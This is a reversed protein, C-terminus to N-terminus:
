GGYQWGTARLELPAAERRVGAAIVEGMVVEHDGQALSGVVKCELYAPSEELLPSGTQGAQFAYGSLLESQQVPTRFFTTAIKKQGEDLLNIAFTGSESVVQFLHSDKRLGVVVLPPEFSVQSLWTVTAAAVREGARSTAVYVGYTIMRLATKKAASDM